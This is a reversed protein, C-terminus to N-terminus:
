KPYFFNTLMFRLLGIIICIIYRWLHDESIIKIEYCIVSILIIKGEMNLPNKKMVFVNRTFSGFISIQIHKHIPIVHM